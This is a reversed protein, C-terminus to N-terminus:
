MSYKVHDYCWNEVLHHVSEASLHREVSRLPGHMLYYLETCGGLQTVSYFIAGM